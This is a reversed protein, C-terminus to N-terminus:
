MIKKLLESFENKEEIKESKELDMTNDSEITEAAIQEITKTKKSPLKLTTSDNFLKTEVSTIELNSADAVQELIKETDKRHRKELRNQEKKRKTLEALTIEPDDALKYFPHLKPDLQAQCIFKKKGKTYVLISSINMVDYQIFADQGIHRALDEHWYDVGHMRILGNNKIKKEDVSLMMYNLEAPEIFRSPDIKKNGEEFVEFPTRGGLGKHPKNGYIYRVWFEFSAKFEAVTLPKREFIKQMWKENRMLTAPKDEIGAGRFSPLLREYNTQMTLFFREINKARANYPTAWTCGVGARYFMGSLEEQLDHDEPNSTFMAARFAKGNDQYVFKPLYGTNLAGNRFACLISQSNETLNLACGVPYRSRMDMYMILMFRQAKGTDPHIIDFNLKKGDAVQVDGVSILNMDRQIIRGIKDRYAKVGDRAFTWEAPHNRSWDKWYRCVTRESVQPDMGKLKYYSFVTDVASGISMRNPNLLLYATDMIVIEPVFRGREHVNYDPSLFEYNRKHQVYKKLLRQITRTSKKGDTDFLEKTMLGSNYSRTVSEWFESKSGKHFEQMELIEECLQGRLRALKDYKQPLTHEPVLSLVPIGQQTVVEASRTHPAEM